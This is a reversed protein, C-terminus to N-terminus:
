KKQIVEVSGSRPKSMDRIVEQLMDPMLIVENLKQKTEVKRVQLEDKLKLNKEELDNINADFPMDIYRQSSVRWVPRESGCMAQLTNDPVLEDAHYFQKFRSGDQHILYVYGAKLGGAPEFGAVVASGFRKEDRLIAKGRLKPSKIFLRKGKFYARIVSAFLYATPYGLSLALEDSSKVSSV